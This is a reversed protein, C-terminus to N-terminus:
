MVPSGLPCQSVCVCAAISFSCASLPHCVLSTGSERAMILSPRPGLVAEPFEIALWSVVGAALWVMVIARFYLAVKLCSM